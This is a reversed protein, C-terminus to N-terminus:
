LTRDAHIDEELWASSIGHLVSTHVAQMTVHNVVNSQLPTIHGQQLDSSGKVGDRKFGAGGTINVSSSTCLDM